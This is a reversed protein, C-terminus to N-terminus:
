FGYLQSIKEFDEPTDVDWLISPADVQMETVPICNDRLLWNLGCDSPISAVRQVASWPFIAPHGRRGEYQPLVVTEPQAAWHRLLQDLVSMEVIPHDGPILLWGDIHSPSHYQRVDEILLEVSRRMDAPEEKAVVCEARSSIVEQQLMPDDSRVLVSVSHILPHDLSEILHRILTRSGLRKLLKPEGMRRSRGAAPVMAFLRPLPAEIM